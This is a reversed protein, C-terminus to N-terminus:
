ENHSRLKSIFKKARERHYPNSRNYYPIGDMFDLSQQLIQATIGEYTKSEKGSSATQYRIRIRHARKVRVNLGALNPCSELYSVQEDSYYTIKPNYFVLSPDGLIFVVKYPFGIQNGTLFLHGNRIMFSLVETQFQYPNVPPDTFDFEKGQKFLDPHNGPLLSIM